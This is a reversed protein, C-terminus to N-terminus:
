QEDKSHMSCTRGMEIKTVQGGSVHHFSAGRYTIQELILFIFTWLDTDLICKPVCSDAKSLSLTLFNYCLIILSCM